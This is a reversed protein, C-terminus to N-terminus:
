LFHLINCVMLLSTLSDFACTNSLIVKGEKSKCSKLETFRSGNKLIPLTKKTRSTNLDLHRIHSNPNLYSTNKRQKNSKRNWSEVARSEENLHSDHPVNFFRLTPFEHDYDSPPKNSTEIVNKGNVLEEEVYLGYPSTVRDECEINNLKSLVFLPSLSDLNNVNHTVLSPSSLNQNDENESLINFDDSIISTSLLQKNNLKSVIPCSSSQFNNKSVRLVSAGKLSKIHNELFTELDTPLPIHKFTVIKLKKFSSKVAASSSLEDGYGFIPIMIGSWLPLLKMTKILIPVLSPLYLPNIGSGKIIMTKSRQYINNAWAQFPNEFEDLGEEQIEYMEELLIRGENETEAYALIEDFQQQFNVFGTSTADILKKRYTECPTELGSDSGIGDTENILVVFLSNLLSHAETLSQCKILLGVSRLIVEKVRPSVTKLPIWKTCIKIFHAVDIRVFCKPLWHSDSQLKNTLLDSCARVYDALSSYQTFSHVVASLLALSNDCVTERPQKVDASIWNLLWNSIAITTHRESIRNTVTFNQHKTGDYVLAEYLYLTNTKEVGFKYFKKVVSGTADIVLKPNKTKSCYGRYMHIQESCFYNVYFLYYGIEHITNKYEEERKM